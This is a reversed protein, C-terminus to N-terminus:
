NVVNCVVDVQKHAPHRLRWNRTALYPRGEAVDEHVLETTEPVGIPLPQKTIGNDIKLIRQQFIFTHSCSFTTERTMNYM